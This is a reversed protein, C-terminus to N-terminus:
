PFLYWLTEVTQKLFLQQEQENWTNQFSDTRQWLRKAEPCSFCVSPTSLSRPYHHGERLHWMYMSGLVKMTKLRRNAGNGPDECLVILNRPWEGLLGVFQHVWSRWFCLWLVKLCLHIRIKYLLFSFFVFNSTWFTKFLTVSLIKWITLSLCSLDSHSFQSM